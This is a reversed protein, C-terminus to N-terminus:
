LVSTLVLSRLPIFTERGFTTYIFWEGEDLFVRRYLCPLMCPGFGLYITTSILKVVM